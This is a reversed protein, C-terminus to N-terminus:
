HAQRPESVKIREFPNFRVDQALAYYCSKFKAGVFDFSELFSEHLEEIELEKLQWPDHIAQGQYFHRSGKTFLLYRETLWTALEDKHREKGIKAKIDFNDAKFGYHSEEFSSELKVKRYPLHFFTRAIFAALAHDTDLTFFYIGSRGNAKVYTRINLELLNSFPLTPTYPFRVGSMKFPVISLYAEGKFTDVELGAPLREQIKQAEIAYNLFILDSWKQEIVWRSM